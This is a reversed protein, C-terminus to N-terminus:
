GMVGEEVGSSNAWSSRVIDYLRLNVLDMCVPPTEMYGM